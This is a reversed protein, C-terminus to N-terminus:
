AGLTDDDGVILTDDGTPASLHDNGALAVLHDNGAPTLLVNDDNIAAL